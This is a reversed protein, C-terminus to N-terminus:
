SDAMLSSVEGSPRSKLFGDMFPSFELLIGKNRHLRICGNSFCAQKQGPPQKLFFIKAEEKIQNIFHGQFKYM